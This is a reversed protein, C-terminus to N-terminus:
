KTTVVYLNNILIQKTTTIGIIYTYTCHQFYKICDVNTKKRILKTTGSCCHTHTPPPHIHSVPEKIQKLKTTRIPIQKETWLQNRKQGPTVFCLSGMPHLHDRLNKQRFDLNSIIMKM